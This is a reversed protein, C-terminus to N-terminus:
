FAFLARPTRQVCQSPICLCHVKQPWRPAELLAQTHGDAKHTHACMHTHPTLANAHLEKREKGLGSGTRPM